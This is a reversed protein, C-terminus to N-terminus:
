IGIWEELLENLEESREKMVGFFGGTWKGFPQTGDPTCVREPLNNFAWIRGGGKYSEVPERLDSAKVNFVERGNRALVVRDLSYLHLQGAFQMFLHLPDIRRASPTGGDRLDFVVTSTGLLGDYYEPLVPLCPM